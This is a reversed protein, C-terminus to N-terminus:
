NVPIDSRRSAANKLFEPDFTVGWGPGPPAALRGDIVKLKPEYIADCWSQAGFGYEVYDGRNALSAVLHLTFLLIMTKNASHPVVRVHATELLKAVRRARTIGGVYGVDPQGIDVARLAAIRKWQDIDWDQEGGAIQVSPFERQAAKRVEATAEIWGPPCPEEFHRVDYEALMPLLAIAGPADYAGNADVLLTVDPGVARRVEKLVAATRGGDDEAGGAQRVGIKFKVAGFGHQACQEALKRAEEAPDTDRRMSSAYAPLQIHASGMGLLHAVSKGELRGRLDWLATDVGCMARWVYTGPFKYEGRMVRDLLGETDLPEDARLHPVIHRHVCQATIDANFPATHGYGELGDDTRVRVVCVQHTAFTEVSRLKM